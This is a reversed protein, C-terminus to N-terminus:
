LLRDNSITLFTVKRVSQVVCHIMYADLGPLIMILGVAPCLVTMMLGKFAASHLLTEVVFIGVSLECISELIVM